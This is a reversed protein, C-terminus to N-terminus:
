LSPGALLAEGIRLIDEASFDGRIIAIIGCDKVWKSVTEISNM